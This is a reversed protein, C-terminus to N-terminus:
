ELPPQRDRQQTGEGPPLGMLEELFEDPELDLMPDGSRIELVAAITGAAGGLGLVWLCYHIDALSFAGVTRGQESLSGAGYGVLFLVGVVFVQVPLAAVSMLLLTLPGHRQLLSPKGAVYMVSYAMALPLIIWPSRHQFGAALVAAVIGLGVAIRLLISLRTM